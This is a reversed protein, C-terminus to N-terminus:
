QQREDAYITVVASTFNVDDIASGAITLAGSVAIGDSYFASGTSDAEGLAYSVPLLVSNCDTKTFIAKSNEDSVTITFATDTGTGNIVIRKLVGYIARTTGSTVTAAPTETIVFAKIAPPETGINAPIQSHVAAMYFLTSGILLGIIYKRM